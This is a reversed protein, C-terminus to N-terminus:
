ETMFHTNFRCKTVHGHKLKGCIFTVFLVYAIHEICHYYRCIYIPRQYRIVLM